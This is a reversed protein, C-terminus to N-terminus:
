LMKQVKEERMYVVEEHDVVRTKAFYRRGKGVPASTDKAGSCLTRIMEEGLGKDALAGQAPRGLQGIFAKLKLPRPTQRTVLHSANRM